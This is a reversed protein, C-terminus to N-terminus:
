YAQGTGPHPFPSPFNVRFGAQTVRTEVSNAREEAACGFWGLINISWITWFFFKALGLSRKRLFKTMKRLLMISNIVASGIGTRQPNCCAKIENGKCWNPTVLHAFMATSYVAMRWGIHPLTGTFVIVM